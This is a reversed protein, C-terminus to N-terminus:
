KRRARQSHSANTRSQSKLCGLFRRGRAPHRRHRLVVTSSALFLCLVSSNRPSVSVGWRFADDHVRCTAERTKARARRDDADRDRWARDRQRPRRGRRARPGLIAHVDQDRGEFALLRAHRGRWRFLCDLAVNIISGRTQRLASAMRAGCQIHRQRQRRPRPALQRSRSPQRHNRSHHHRRQQCCRELRRDGASGSRWATAPTPMRSMSRLIRDGRRRRASHRWPPRRQPTPGFMPSSSAHGPQARCGVAIRAAM